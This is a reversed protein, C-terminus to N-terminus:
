PGPRVPLTSALARLLEVRDVSSHLDRGLDLLEVRIRRTPDGDLHFTGRRAGHWKPCLLVAEPCGYRVLYAHLQYADAPSVGVSAGRGGDAALLADATLKKWKTDIVPIPVRDREILIDPKLRFAGAGLPPTAGEAAASDDAPARRLLWRRRSEAQPHITCGDLGLRRANRVILQAVFQEFLRDMPFLLSFSRSDGGSPTPSLGEVVLRCFQVLDAFRESSRDLHVRELLASSLPHDTAPDLELLAERLCREPWAQRVDRLLFRCTAKLLQNLPTDAVFEDCESYCRERHFANVRLQQALLLKGRFYRRNEETVVYRHHLGLRLEELLGKAFAGVFADLLPGRPTRLDSTERQRSPLHGAVSLMYLLNRQASCPDLAGDGPADEAADTRDIKPLVEITLGGVQLVGVFNRARIETRYSWDFIPEGHTAGHREDLAQLRAAFPGLRSRAIREYELVRISQRRSM